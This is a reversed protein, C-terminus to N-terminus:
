AQALLQTDRTRPGHEKGEGGRPCEGAKQEAITRTVAPQQVARQPTQGLLDDPPDGPAEVALKATLHKVQRWQGEPTRRRALLALAHGKEISVTWGQEGTRRVPRFADM